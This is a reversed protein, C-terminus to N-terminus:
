HGADATEEALSLLRRAAGEAFRLSRRDPIRAVFAAVSLALIHWPTDFPRGAAGVLADRYAAIVRRRLLRLLEDTEGDDSAARIVAVLDDDLREVSARHEAILPEPAFTHLTVTM